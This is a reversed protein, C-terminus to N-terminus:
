FKSSSEIEPRMDKPFVEYLEATIGKVKSLESEYRSSDTSRTDPHEVLLALPLVFPEHMVGFHKM